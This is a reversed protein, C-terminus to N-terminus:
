MEEAAEWHESVSLMVLVLAVIGFGITLLNLWKVYLDVMITGLMFFVLYMLLGLSARYKKFYGEYGMYASSFGWVIIFCILRISRFVDSLPLISHLFADKYFILLLSQPARDGGALVQYLFYMGTVTLIQVLILAAFCIVHYCAFIFFVQRRGISLRWLLFRSKSKGRESVSWFLMWFVALFAAAFFVQIHTEGVIYDFSVPLTERWETLSINMRNRNKEIRSYFMLLEAASMMLFISLLKYITSRTNLSFISLYRKM